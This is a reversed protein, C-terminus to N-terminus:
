EGFTVPHKYILDPTRERCEYICLTASESRVRRQGLLLTSVLTRVGSRGALVWTLKSAVELCM